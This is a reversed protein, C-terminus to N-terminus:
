ARAAAVGEVLLEQEDGDRDDVLAADDAGNADGRARLLDLRIHV